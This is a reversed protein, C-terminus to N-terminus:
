NQLVGMGSSWKERNESGMKQVGLGALSVMVVVGICLVLLPLFVFM